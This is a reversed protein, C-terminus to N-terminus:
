DRVFAMLDNVFREPEEWHPSHGTGEYVLLRSGRISRQLRDQEVRPCIEDRDGWVILTPMTLAALRDGARYDLIGAIGARWIRVPMRMSENVAEDLFAAPVPRHIAGAQFDAAFQRPVPDRLESIAAAMERVAPNDVTTASGELVLHSVRDPRGFAVAQAVLSGMSHGVVAARAVGTADMFAVVDAALDEMGYGAEPCGSRGHGRQSPALARVDGPLLKMVGDYSYWSDGYGHVFVIAPGRGREVYELELGTALRARRLDVTAM